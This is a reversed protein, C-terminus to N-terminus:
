KVVFGFTKDTTFDGSFNFKHDPLEKFTGDQALLVKKNEPFEIEVELSSNEMGPQKQAVLSFSAPKDDALDLIFPLKYQLLLNVKEKPSTYAWGGFVTKGSENFVDLGFKNATKGALIQALDKDKKYGSKEYDVSAQVTEKTNGSAFLLQSGQPAYLRFYDANVKNWFDYALGGGNHQREIKVTDFVQGNSGIRIIQKIKQSVVHDTKYGCINSNVFLSFDKETKQVQGAWGQGVVFNELSNDRFYLLAEQRELSQLLVQLLALPDDTAKASMKQFLLPALDALIKKPKNETKDFDGEVKNQVEAVFNDASIRLNYAPLDIQGTFRLLNEVVQPTLAIVGDVTEGGTKEYFSAVKQASTPFDAFWNADHMSWNASIKQIPEPPVIYEQLQGDPNYVNDIFIKKFSGKDVDFVGYSGIFGGTARLESNNQFIVLYKKARQHGLFNLLNDLYYPANDLSKVALGLSGQLQDLNQGPILDAPVQAMRKQAETLYSSALKINQELEFLRDTLSGGGSDRSFVKKIEPELSALSFSLHEGALSINKAAILVDNSQSVRNLGPVFALLALLNGALGDVKTEALNLQGSAQYFSEGALRFNQDGLAKKALLLNHYGAYTSALAEDKVKLGQGLFGVLPILLILFLATAMFIPKNKFGNLAQRWFFGTGIKIKGSPPTFVPQYFTESIVQPKNTKPGSLISSFAALERKLEEEDLAGENEQAESKKAIERVAVTLEPGDLIIDLGLDSAQRTLEIKLLAEEPKAKAAFIEPETEAPFKNSPASVDNQPLLQEDRQHIKELINLLLERQNTEQRRSFHKDLYNLLWKKEDFKKPNKRRSPMRIKQRGTKQTLRWLRDKLPNEMKTARIDAVLKTKPVKAVM